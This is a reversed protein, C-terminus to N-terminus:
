RALELDLGFAAPGVVRDASDPWTHLPALAFLVLPQGLRVQDTRLSTRSRPDLAVIVDPTAAVTLGDCTAAVFEDLHDIRASSGSHHNTLTISGPARGRRPRIEDVRGDFLLRGGLGSVLLREDDAEASLYAAGLAWCSSLSGRVGVAALVQATTPYLAMAAAGGMASVTAVLLSETSGLSSNSVVVTAGSPGVLAMPTAQHGAVALTTMRISPFARGMLDGDVIPVGLEAAGLVAVMANLGGIEIAGVADLRGGVTDVVARGALALDKPDILREAMVDPGGVVGVHVVRAQSPLERAAVVDVARDRLEHRLLQAGIGVSGGGGSGLLTAGAALAAVHEETFRRLVEPAARRVAADPM